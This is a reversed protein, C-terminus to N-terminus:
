LPTVRSDCVPKARNNEEMCHKGCTQKTQQNTPKKRKPLIFLFVEALGLPWLRWQPLCATLSCSIDAETWLSWGWFTLDPKEGYVKGNLGARTVPWRPASSSCCPFAGESHLLHDGNVLLDGKRQPGEELSRKPGHYVTGRGPPLFPWRERTIRHCKWPVLVCFPSLCCWTMFGRTLAIDEGKEKSLFIFSPFVHVHVLSTFFIYIFLMHKHM